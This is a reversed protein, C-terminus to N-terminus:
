QKRNNIVKDVSYQPKENVSMFIRGIYEGILGLSVLILGGFFITLVVLTTWGEVEVGRNYGELYEILYVIGLIFSVASATFGTLTVLRLPYISYNTAHNVFVILSRFLNYNSKGKYREHHEVEVQTLNSTVTLITADIYPYSGPFKVIEDVVERKIIKFPSLYIEKPKNLLKESLRGNLNSGMNKWGTQKKEPFKAYCVDYGKKCQEYLKFIDAPAHQLDDDMIVVYEGQTMRLGALLASDQGFNKRLSIGIAKSNLKCVEEIKEWSKDKSKDNVLILEYDDFSSFADQIAKNFELVCDESNYVPVVISIKINTM